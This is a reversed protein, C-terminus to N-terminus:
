DIPKNSPMSASGGAEPGRKGAPGKAKGTQAPAAPAPAGTTAAASNTGTNGAPKAANNDSCGVFAALAIPAFWRLTSKYMSFGQCFFAPGTQEVVPGATLIM